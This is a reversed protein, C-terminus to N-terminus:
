KNSPMCLAVWHACIALANVKHTTTGPYKPSRRTIRESTFYDRRVGLEGRRLRPRVRLVRRVRPPRPDHGTRRAHSLHRRDGRRGATSPAPRAAAQAHSAICGDCGEVVAIALAILEKTASDLWGRRLCRPAARRLGTPMPSPAACSGTCPSLDDLVVSGHPGTETPADLATTM